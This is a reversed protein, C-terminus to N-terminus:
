FWKNLFKKKDKRLKVENLSDDQCIRLKQELEDLESKLKKENALKADYEKQYIELTKNKDDFEDLNDLSSGEVSIFNGDEINNQEFDDANEYWKTANTEKRDKEVILSRLFKRSDNIDDVLEKIKNQKLSIQKKIDKISTEKEKIKSAITYNLLHIILLKM